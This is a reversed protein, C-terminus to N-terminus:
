CEKDEKIVLKNNKRDYKDGNILNYLIDWGWLFYVVYMNTSKTLFSFFSNGGSGLVIGSVYSISLSHKNSSYIFM